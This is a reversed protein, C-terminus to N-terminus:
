RTAATARSFSEAAIRQSTFGFAALGLVVVVAAIALRRKLRGAARGGFAAPALFLLKQEAFEDATLIGRDKMAGLQHLQRIDSRSLKRNM